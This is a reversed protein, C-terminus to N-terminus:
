YDLIKDEMEGQTCRIRYIGVPTISVGQVLGVVKALHLQFRMPWAQVEQVSGLIQSNFGDLHYLCFLSSPIHKNYSFM